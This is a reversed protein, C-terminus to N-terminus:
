FLLRFGLLMSWTSSTSLSKSLQSKAKFDAIDDANLRFTPAQSTTGASAVSLPMVNDYSSLANYYYCGWSDNLLNGVNLIDLSVQLTLRNDKGFNVFVDQLVKIDFRHIWPRVHGFREAYDGKRAKLYANNDVYEFFAQSQAEPTMGKYEVFTIEGPSAPIYMLDSNSSGDGNVDGAYTYSWRGSPVGQYVLGITTALHNLYEIRYTINGILRHPISFNSYSLGPNNLSNVSANATWVSYATSGPNASVDKANTYTYAVMGSLGKSFNKTLQATMQLQYGKSSNTFLMASALTPSVKRNASTWVPRQDPGAMTGEPAAENANVQTVANVDKSYLVEGTFIMNWPLEMDVALNNRWIQPFKFDKDVMAINANNPLFNPDPKDPFTTKDANILAKYDPNFKLGYAACTAANWALEPSQIMASGGVQNTFWVFPMMGSFLGTGGRLQLSRDGKVDWNFGIRPNITVKPKPWTGVDWSGGKVAIGSDPYDIDRFGTTKGVIAQNTDMKDFYFPLELRVGYTLKFAPTVQWEDQAYLGGYGFTLMQGPADNGYYGYTLGFGIPTADNIFDDVSAYRYYSTGERIYSNRVYMREFSAGVTVTHRNLNITMNNVVNWTNNLVENHFTFLEYGFSMYADGDKWIDVHPFRNLPEEFKDNPSTRGDRIHTYTAYFQNTIRSSLTSNLEGTISRVTNEMGYFNNQFAISNLSMRGSRARDIGSPGSTANTVNMYSGVVDNYRIMLKHNRSINWDLRALIKYNQVKFPDWDKYKGPDYEYKSILHQKVRELDAESTRSIFQSQNANGDTSPRWAVGAANETEFEGSLFFFLKNKILPGAVRVGYTQKGTEDVGQIEVGDVTKGQMGAFRQYTYASAQIKNTGSKTVANVAAGTFRSQRIDYPAINVTIEEIADLSIPEARGGPLDSSLGFNNNFGAGDVTFNNMRNDRSAFSFGSAQPTLKTFDQIGRSVTPLAAIDRASVNTSTGSKDSTLIPNEVGASIVIAELTTAAEAIVINQVYNESLRLAINGYTADAYGMYSVTVTYPGGIRMNHMRYNGAIDTIAYYQTGSPTHVAIVTAGIVASGDAETVRGSMSSTTIQAFALTAVFFSMALLAIKKVTQRMPQQKM